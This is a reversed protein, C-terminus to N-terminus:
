RRQVAASLVKVWHEAAYKSEAYFYFERRQRTVVAFAAGGASPSGRSTPPNKEHYEHVDVIDDLPIDGRM